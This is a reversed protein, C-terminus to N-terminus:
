DGPCLKQIATNAWIPYGLSAGTNTRYTNAKDNYPVVDMEGGTGGDVSILANAMVYKIQWEDGKAWGTSIINTFGVRYLCNMDFYNTDTLPVNEWKGGGGVPAWALPTGTCVVLQHATSTKDYAIAGETACSNGAQVPVSTGASHVTSGPQIYGASSLDGYQDGSVGPVCKIPRSGDWQLIGGTAADCPNGSYNTPPLMQISGDALAPFPYLPLGCALFALVAPRPFHHTM